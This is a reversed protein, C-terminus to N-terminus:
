HQNYITVPRKTIFKLYTGRDEFGAERCNEVIIGFSQAQGRSTGHGEPMVLERITFAFRMNVTDVPIIGLKEPHRFGGYNVYLHMYNKPTCDCRFAIEDDPKVIFSNTLTDRKVSKPVTVSCQISDLSVQFVQTRPTTICATSLLALAILCFAWHSLLPKLSTLMKFTLPQNSCLSLLGFESRNWFGPGPAVCVVWFAAQPPGM